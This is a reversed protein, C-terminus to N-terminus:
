SDLVLFCRTLRTSGSCGTLSGPSDQTLQGNQALTRFFSLISLIFMILLFRKASFSDISLENSAGLDAPYFM